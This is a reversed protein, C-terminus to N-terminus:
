YPCTGPSASHSEFAPWSDQNVTTGTSVSASPMPALVAIKLRISATINRAKGTRSWDSRGVVSIRGDLGLM